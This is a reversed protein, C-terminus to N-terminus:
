RSFIARITGLIIKVDTSIGASQIYKRNLELKKPMIEEVYTKEPDASQSLIANEGIFDISAFDTLGPRVNLVEKQEDTYLAVYKPVEPRPGVISMEGKIINLLQPLEDLKYKRLAYGIGTIRSDKMGVTLQGQSESGPKMTRFKHLRFHRGNKGVRVQHFFVGGGSDLVIALSIFIWVPLLLLLALISFFLDFLRKM